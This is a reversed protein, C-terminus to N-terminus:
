CEDDDDHISDHDYAGDNYGRESPEIQKRKRQQEYFQKKLEEYTSM